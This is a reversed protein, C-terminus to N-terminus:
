EEPHHHEHGPACRADEWGVWYPGDPGHERKWIPVREKVSRDLLRSARFAEDRHPLAPRAFWRSRASRRAHGRPAARGSTYAAIEAEIEACHPGDRRRGDFRLGRIRAQDRRARTTDRVVGIFVRFRGRGPARCPSAEDVSLPEFAFTRRPARHNRDHIAESLHRIPRRSKWFSSDTITMWRDVIEDHRLPSRPRARPSSRKWKSAPGISHKSRQESAFSARQGRRTSTSELGGHARDSSLSPHAGVNAQGGPHRRHRRHSFTARRRRGLSPRTSAKADSGPARWPGDHPPRKEAIGVM